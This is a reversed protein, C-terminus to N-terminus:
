FTICSVCVNDWFLFMWTTMSVIVQFVAGTFTCLQLYWNEMMERRSKSEKEKYNLTNELMKAFTIIGQYHFESEEQRKKCGNLGFFLTLISNILKVAM